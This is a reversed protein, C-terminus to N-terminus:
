KKKPYYHLKGYSRERWVSFGTYLKFLKIPISKRYSESLEDILKYYYGWFHSRRATESKQHYTLGVLTKPIINFTPSNKRICDWIFKWDEATRYSMLFRVDNVAEKTFISSSLRLMYLFKGSLKGGNFLWSALFTVNRVNSLISFFIKQSTRFEGIFYPYSLTTVIASKNFPLKSTTSQLFDKRWLDDSDLFAFCDGNAVNIGKTRALSPGLARDNRILKIQKLYAPRNRKLYQKISPNSAEDVVIIQKRIYKIDQDFVSKLTNLLLDHRNHVPIIISVTKM